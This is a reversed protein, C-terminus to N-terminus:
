KGTIDDHQVLQHCMTLMTLGRPIYILSKGSELYIHFTLPSLQVLSTTLFYQITKYKKVPHESELENRIHFGM